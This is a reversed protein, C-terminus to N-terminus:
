HHHHGHGGATASGEGRGAHGYSTDQILEWDLLYDPRRRDVGPWTENRAPIMVGGLTGMAGDPITEGTPNDYVATLRYVHDKRLPIGLRGLFMRMPMGIVNGDEDLIPAAEWLVKGATVDEFRLAVGYKHLHGGVGIIRGSVAPRGEWSKESRGPPLDYAHKSAPPMVDLYFPFVPIPPLWTGRPTFPMRTVVRVGEYSESTPNHMMATVLLREGQRVPLGFLRPLKVPGTEHGAAGVRQMIESFLERRDTAIINIHHLVLQPVRRGHADTIEVRYGHLWGDAPLTGVVGGIQVIDEHSAGAPLDIPGYAIVLEGRERDWRLDLANPDVPLPAHLDPEAAEPTGVLVMLGLGLLIVAAVAVALLRRRTM